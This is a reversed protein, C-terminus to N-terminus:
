VVCGISFSGIHLAQLLRPSSAGRTKLFRGIFDMLLNIEIVMVNSKVSRQPPVALLGGGGCECSCLLACHASGM